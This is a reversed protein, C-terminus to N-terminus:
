ADIHFYFYSQSKLISDTLTYNQKAFILKINILAIRYILKWNSNRVCMKSYAYPTNYFCM